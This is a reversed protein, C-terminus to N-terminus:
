LHALPTIFAVFLTPYHCPLLPVFFLFLFAYAMPPDGLPSVRSIRLLFSHRAPSRRFLGLLVSFLWRNSPPCSLLFVSFPRALPLGSFACFVFFLILIPVSTCATFFFCFVWVCVCLHPIRVKWARRGDNRPVVRRM